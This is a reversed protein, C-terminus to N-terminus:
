KRIITTITIVMIAIGIETIEATDMVTVMVIVEDEEVVIGIV